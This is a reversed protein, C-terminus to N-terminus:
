SSACSVAVQYATFKRINIVGSDLILYQGKIGQLTGEVRPNKDLDLSVIKTPDAWQPYPGIVDTPATNTLDAKHERKLAGAM